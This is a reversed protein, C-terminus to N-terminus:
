LESKLADIIASIGMRKVQLIDTTDSRPWNRYGYTHYNRYTIERIEHLVRNHKQKLHKIWWEKTIQYTNEVVPVESSKSSRIKLDSIPIDSELKRIKKLQDSEMERLERESTTFLNVFSPLLFLVWISVMSISGAKRTEIKPKEQQEISLTEM